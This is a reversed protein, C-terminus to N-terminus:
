DEPAGSAGRKASAAQLIAAVQDAHEKEHEFSDAAIWEWLAQGKLWPYHQPDELERDTFLEVRRITQNRAGHYDQLIRELPRGRDSEIWHANIEDTSASSFHVTTPKQGQKLQWLLKILEAEWRTLHALLDKLTWGGAPDPTLMGQEDMDAFMESFQERGSELADLIQDKNV